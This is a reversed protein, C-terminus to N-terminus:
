LYKEMMINGEDNLNDVGNKYEYGLKRYFNKGTISPAVVIKKANLQTAKEELKKILIRGIGRKHYDPLVFVTLLWYISKDKVFNNCISATGIVNGEYIAVYTLRNKFKKIIDEPKFKEAQKDIEEKGYDEINVQFLNRMIINSIKEADYEEYERVLVNM